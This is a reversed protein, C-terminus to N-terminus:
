SRTLVWREAHTVVNEIVAYPRAGRTLNPVVVANCAGIDNLYNNFISNFISDAFGAAVVTAIFCALDRPLSSLRQKLQRPLNM